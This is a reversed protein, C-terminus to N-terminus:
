RIMTAENEFALYQLTSSNLHERIEPEDWWGKRRSRKAIEQLQSKEQADDIGLYSLLALLDTTSVAVDGSEIRQVKSLSWDLAYAVQGQTFGADERAKRLALRLRRRAVAPSEGSTM